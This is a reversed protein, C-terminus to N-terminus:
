EKKDAAATAATTKPKVPEVAAPADPQDVIRPDKTLDVPQPPPGPKWGLGAWATGVIAEYPLPGGHGVEPHVIHVRDSPGPEATERWGRVRTWTDRQDAGEVLAFAGEADRIWYTQKSM